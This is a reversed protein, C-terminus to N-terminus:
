RRKEDIKKRMLNRQLTILIACLLIFILGHMVTDAFFFGAVGLVAGSNVYAQGAWDKGWKKGHGYAYFLPAEKKVEVISAILAIVVFTLGVYLYIKRIFVPDGDMPTIPNVARVAMWFVANLLFVGTM